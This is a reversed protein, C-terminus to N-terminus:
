PEGTYEYIEVVRGDLITFDLDALGPGAKLYVYRRMGCGNIIYPRGLATRVASASSGLKIGSVTHIKSLDRQPVGPPAPGSVRLILAGSTETGAFHLAARNRPDYFYKSEYLRPVGSVVVQDAVRKAIPPASKWPATKFAACRASNFWRALADFPLATASGSGTAAASIVTLFILGISFQRLALNM